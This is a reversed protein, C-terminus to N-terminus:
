FYLQAQVQLVDREDDAGAAINAKGFQTNVWNVGVKMSHGKMYWNFGLSTIEDEKDSVSTDKDFKEFRVAPEINTGPIFYGAQVYWGQEEKKPAGTSDTEFNIYEAQATFGGMHFSVDAGTLSRDTETAAGITKQGDQQGFSVGVALHQGKGLHADSQGKEIWGAPSFTVRGGVYPDSETTASEQAGDGLAVAYSFMGGAPKGHLMLIPQNYDGFHKKAAETSAPREVLLQKSSSSLSVRSYPLKTQGFLLSAADAFKYDLLAYLPSVESKKGDKYHKDAELVYKYKLAKTLHGGIELRTRRLYLDSESVNKGASDARLDGTDFRPQLRVRVKLDAEDNFKVTVGKTEDGLAFDALAPATAAVCTAGLAATLLKMHM